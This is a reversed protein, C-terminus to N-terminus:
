EGTIVTHNFEPQRRSALLEYEDTMEREVEDLTQRETAMVMALHVDSIAKIAQTRGASGLITNFGRVVLNEPEGTFIEAHGQVILTTAKNLETGTMGTGAPVFVTRTYIGGHITHLTPVPIEPEDFAAARLAKVREISHETMPRIRLAQQMVAPLAPARVDADSTKLTFLENTKVFGLRPLLRALSSDCPATVTLRPVGLGIAKEKVADLLRLGSRGFRHAKAVYISDMIALWLGHTNVSVTLFAFGILRGDHRAAFIHLQGSDDLARYLDARIRPPPLGREAGYEVVLPAFDPDAEIEAFTVPEIM